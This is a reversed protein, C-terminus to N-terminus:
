CIAKLFSVSVLTQGRGIGLLAQELFALIAKGEKYIINFTYFSSLLAIIADIIREQPIACFISGECVIYLQDMEYLEGVAVIQPQIFHQISEDVACNWQLHFLKLTLRCYLIDEDQTLFMVVIYRFIDHQVIM